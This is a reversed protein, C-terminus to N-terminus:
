VDFEIYFVGDNEGQRAPVVLRYRGGHLMGYRTIDFKIKGSEGVEMYSDLRAVVSELGERPDRPVQYWVYDIQVELFGVSSYKLDMGEKKTNSIEVTLIRRDSNNEYSTFVYDYFVDRLGPQGLFSTKNMMWPVWTGIESFGRFIGNGKIDDIKRRVPMEETAAVFGSFDIDCTFVRHSSCTLLIGNSWVLYVPKLDSQGVPTVCVSYMPSEILGPYWKSPKLSKGKTKSLKTLLDKAKENEDNNYSSTQWIMGSEGDYYAFSLTFGSDLFEDLRKLEPIRQPLTLSFENWFAVGLIVMLIVAMVALLQRKAKKEWIQTQKGIETQMSKGEEKRIQRHFVQDSFVNCVRGANKSRRREDTTDREPFNVKQLM